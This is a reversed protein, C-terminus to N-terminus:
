LGLGVQHEECASVCKCVCLLWVAEACVWLGVPGQAGSWDTKKGRSSGGEALQLACEMVSSGRREAGTACCVVVYVCVARQLACGWRAEGEESALRCMAWWVVSCASCAAARVEVKSGGRLAPASTCLGGNQVTSM